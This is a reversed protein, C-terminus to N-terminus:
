KKTRETSIAVNLVCGLLVLYSSIYMWMLMAAVAGISGYVENYNGFNALYFSFLWSAGYWLVVAVIAGVSFIGGRERGDGNPGFRYLIGLAILLVLMAVVWRLALLAGTIESALPVFALVVPAVVVMILAVLGVAILSVTILFAAVIHQLGGRPKVGMIANLGRILAGVGARASWLAVGISVISAWGLTATEASLLSNIQMRFLMFVDQPIVDQLLDLQQSIVIPDAILGFVAISAAIAPFVSFLGYFAVGASILDLDNKSWVKRFASAAAMTKFFAGNM